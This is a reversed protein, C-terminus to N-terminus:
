QQVKWKTNNKGKNSIDDILKAQLIIDNYMKERNYKNSTEDIFMEISHSFHTDPELTIEEKGSVYEINIIPNYNEPATFIRNTSLHGTSGWVDLSCRYSNDMGFGIQMVQGTSNSLTASGYMDVEYEPLYNLMASDVKITDDLLLCALKVAYGGADLLAGGGLSKNYRFDNAARKPFGFDARLLRIEGIKGSNIIDRIKGIQSHYQFMYNEHLALNNKKAIEVLEKSLEYSITSPKEILVHLGHELAVKAWKYHLAPPQPIYVANIKPDNILSQFDDKIELKYKDCFVDLKSKDYEEAISCINIENLSEAAPMFRRFAIESCGIIGLNIM